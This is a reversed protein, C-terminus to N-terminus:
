IRSTERLNIDSYLYKERTRYKKLLKFETGTFVYIYIYIYM